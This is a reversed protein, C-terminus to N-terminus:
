FKGTAGSDAGKGTLLRWYVGLRRNLALYVVFGAFLAGVIFGSQPIDDVILSLAPRGVAGAGDV